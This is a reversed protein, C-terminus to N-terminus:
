ASKKAPCLGMDVRWQWEHHFGVCVNIIHTRRLQSAFVGHTLPAIRLVTQLNLYTDQTM